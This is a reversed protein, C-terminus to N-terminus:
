PNWPAPMPVGLVLDFLVFLAAAGACAVLALRATPREGQYVAMAGILLAIAFPYGIVPVVLLYGVGIGLAGAARRLQLLPGIASGRAPAAKGSGLGHRLVVGLGILVGLGALVAAYILPLGAPGIEDALATEGIDSALAYYIGAVALLTLSCALDRRPSNL